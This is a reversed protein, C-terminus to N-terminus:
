PQRVAAIHRGHGAEISGAFRRAVSLADGAYKALATMAQDTEYEWEQATRAYLNLAGRMEPRPSIPLSVVTTLGAEVATRQWRGTAPSSGIEQIRVRRNEAAATLCPGNGGAYQAEDIARAVEDSAAITSPGGAGIITLSAAQVVASSGAALDVIGQSVQSLSQSNALLDLLAALVLGGTTRPPSRHPPEVMPGAPGAVFRSSGAARDQHDLQRPPDYSHPV